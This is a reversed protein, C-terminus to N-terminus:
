RSIHWGGNLTAVGVLGELLGVGGLLVEWSHTLLEVEWRELLELELSLHWGDSLHVLKSLHGSRCATDFWEM